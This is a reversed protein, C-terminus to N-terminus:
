VMSEMESLTPREPFDCATAADGFEVILKLSDIVPKAKKTGGFIM